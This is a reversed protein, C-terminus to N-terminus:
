AYDLLSRQVQEVKRVAEREEASVPVGLQEKISLALKPGVQPVKMLESVSAKRLDDLTRFGYSYLMRARVRGIGKLSALPLLEERVGHEVRKMLVSLRVALEKDGLLASLERSAYLLWRATEVLRYLDGPQVHFERLIADEPAEEIWAHLVKAVKLEGLFEEFGIADVDPEPPRFFLEEEHEELFAVLPELEDRHPRLKPWMDPTHAILHLLSLDTLRGPRRGLVAERIVVASAPDIYLESVRKGFLTAKLAGAEEVVMGQDLLYRLSKRILGKMVGLGYQHAYFTRSFFEYLEEESSAFGAAVTALVHARLVKERALKSWIREPEAMVYTEMLYDLEEETRALLVAEGVKDYKPRGARGVMQKYDLVSIENFGYGPEYRRYDGIIVTRAPLNVGYALTPTATLVKIHGSRFEREIIRRHAGGLGAHHFAVGSRVLEALLESLRTREGTALIQEAIRGLASRAAESLREEVHRALKKALSMARQRTSVFILIQGGLRLTRDILALVPKESGRAPLELVRGDRFYIEGRYLVGEHLEVPRWDTDVVEAGLWEALEDANSVTASLALIQVNPNLQMMRALVIELTPGRDPFTLLHVEDAVVLTIDSMWPSKHRLLSDAKENTTIIIDASALHLEPSDYDGTSIAVRIPEGNPKRVAELRRFEEYKENALARLPTLYLVKGGRELVHKVACLIAVLTKGSATPSALVLNRGELAGARVAAEQPPFLEVIGQESLLAKVQEDVPLEDIRM